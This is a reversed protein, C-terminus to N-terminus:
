PNESRPARSSVPEPLVKEHSFVYYRHLPYNFGLFVTVRAILWSLSVNAAPMLALLGVLGANLVASIGSVILYRYAMQLSSGRSRFAWSRNIGFNVLGGCICGFLTASSAGVEGAQVLLSFVVFDVSTAVGGAIANRAVGGRGLIESLGRM